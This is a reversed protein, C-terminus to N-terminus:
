RFFGVWHLAIKVWRSLRDRPSTLFNAASDSFSIKGDNKFKNNANYNLYLDVIDKYNSNGWSIGSDSRNRNRIDMRKKIQSISRFPFHLVKIRSHYTAGVGSPGNDKYNSWKLSTLNRYFRSASWNLPIYHSYSEPALPPMDEQLGIFEVTNTCIRGFQPPVKSLFQRPNEYYIEDADMICWWDARPYVRSTNVWNFPISKLGERFEHYFSGLLVVREGFGNLIDITGDDSGNDIVFIVDVWQLAREITQRVIDAENKVCMAAYIIM